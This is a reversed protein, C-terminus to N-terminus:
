TGSKVEILIHCNQKEIRNGRGKARASFRKFSRAKDVLVRSVVLEDIDLGVNNEANAIASNLLGKMLAASKQPLFGLISLAWGAKKGRITAAVLRAKQASVRANKLKAIVM